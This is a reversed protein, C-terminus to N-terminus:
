FWVQSSCKGKVAGVGPRCLMVCLVSNPSNCSGVFCAGNGAM